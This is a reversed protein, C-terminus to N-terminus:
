ENKPVEKEGYPFKMPEDAIHFSICKARPLTAANMIKFKLYLLCKEVRKGFVWIEGPQDRDPEPGKVYDAPTLGFVIDEQNKKTLGLQALTRNNETRSVVPLGFESVARKLVELFARVAERSSLGM